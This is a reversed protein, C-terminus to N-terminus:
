PHCGCGAGLNNKLLQARLVASGTTAVIEGPLVGVIIETNTADKVGVRVKRIHFVKPADEKLFDKNRVFVIHCDGDWQVAENPVVIAQPEERLIVRGMGFTGSRLKGQANDLVARVRVTRTKEDVSTSIWVIKGTVDNRSGDPRFRVTNGTGVRPADESRLELELWMRSLDAIVFLVKDADVVEGAVVHHEVVVGEQPAVLPFLNATTTPVDLERVITAPLGLFQVYRTLQDAALGTLEEIRVSLGLNNLAQAAAAVRISAEKAAAETERFRAESIAGQGFTPKMSELLKDKLQAQALAQMLESKTRGVEASDVLALLEGKRVKDGAQKESRWVTGKVRSALHAIATQDYIIEGNATVAETMPAEWVPAIDVGAKEVAAQSVFQVHKQHLKCQKANEVREAFELSRAARQRDAETVNPTTKLQALEPHCLVCEPIGHQKCWGFDRAPPLLKPNCEVCISEPVNHEACWDAQTTSEPQKGALAAASPLKWGQRHGAYALGALLALVVLTPASHFVRRLLPVRPPSQRDASSDPVRSSVNSELSQTSM